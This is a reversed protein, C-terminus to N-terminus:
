PLAIPQFRECSCILAIFLVECADWATQLTVDRRWDSAGGRVKDMEQLVLAHRRSM